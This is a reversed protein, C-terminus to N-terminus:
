WAVFESAFGDREEFAVADRASQVSGCRAVPIWDRGDLVFVVATCRFGQGRNLCESSCVGSPADWGLDAGCVSCKYKM